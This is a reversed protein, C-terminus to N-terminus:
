IFIEILAWVVLAAWIIIYFWSKAMLKRDKLMKEASKMWERSYTAFGIAIMFTTFLMVAFIQVINMTQLLFNLAIATIILSVIATYIPKSWINKVLNYWTKPSAIIIIIKVAVLVAFILALIKITDLM